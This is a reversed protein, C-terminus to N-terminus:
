GADNGKIDPQLMGRVEDRVLQKRGEGQPGGYILRYNTHWDKGFADRYAVHGFVYLTYEPRGLANLKNRLLHPNNPFVM